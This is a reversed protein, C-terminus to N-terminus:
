RVPTGAAPDKFEETPYGLIQIKKVAFDVNDPHGYNQPDWRLATINGLLKKRDFPFGEYEKFITDDNQVVDFRKGGSGM